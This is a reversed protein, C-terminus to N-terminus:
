AVALRFGRRPTLGFSISYKRLVAAWRVLVVENVVRRVVCGFETGRELVGGSDLWREALM